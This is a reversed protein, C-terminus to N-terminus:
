YQVYSCTTRGMVKIAQKLILGHLRLGHLRLILGHLRLILGHLRLILGHLRFILDHLQIQTLVVHIYMVVM